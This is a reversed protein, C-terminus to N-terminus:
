NSMKLIEVDEELTQYYSINTVLYQIVHAISGSRSRSPQLM